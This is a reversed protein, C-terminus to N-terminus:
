KVTVDSSGDPFEVVEAIYMNVVPVPPPLEVGKESSMSLPVVLQVVARGVPRPAQVKDLM